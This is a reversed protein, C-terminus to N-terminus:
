RKPKKAPNSINGIGCGGTKEKNVASFFFWKLVKNAQEEGM